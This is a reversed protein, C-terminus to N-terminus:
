DGARVEVGTIRFQVLSNNDDNTHWWATPRIYRFEDWYIDITTERGESWTSIRDRGQSREDRSNCFKDSPGHAATYRCSQQRPNNLKITNVAGGGVVWVPMVNIIEGTEALSDLVFKRKEETTKLRAFRALDFRTSNIIEVTGQTENGSTISSTFHSQIRNSLNSLNSPDLRYMQGPESLSARPYCWVATREEDRINTTNIWSNRFIGRRYDGSWTAFQVRVHAEPCNKSASLSGSGTIRKAVDDTVYWNRVHGRPSRNTTKIHIPYIVVPDAYNLGMRSLDIDASSNVIHVAQTLAAVLQDVIADDCLRRQNYWASGTSRGNRCHVTEGLNLQPFERMLDIVTLDGGTSIPLRKPQCFVLDYRCQDNEDTTSDPMLLGDVMLALLDQSATRRLRETLGPGSQLQVGAKGTSDYRTRTIVNNNVSSIDQLSNFCFAQTRLQATFNHVGTHDNNAIAAQLRNSLDAIMEETCALAAGSSFMLISALLTAGKCLKLITKM